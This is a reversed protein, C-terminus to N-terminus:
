KDRPSLQMITTALEVFEVNNKYREIFAEAEEKTAGLNILDTFDALLDETAAEVAAQGLEEPSANFAAYAARGAEKTQMQQYMAQLRAQLKAFVDAGPVRADTSHLRRAIEDDDDAGLPGEGSEHYIIGERGSGDPMDAHVSIGNPLQKAVEANCGMVCRVESPVFAVTITGDTGAFCVEVAEGLDITVKM